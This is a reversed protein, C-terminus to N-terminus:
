FTIDEIIYFETEKDEFLTISLIDYQIWRFGPNLYLFHDSAQQFSRFKKWSVSEEPRVFKSYRRTKVEVFHLRGQKSAIIDIECHSYRWNRHLIVYGKKRLWEVAQREGDKGIEIHTAVM